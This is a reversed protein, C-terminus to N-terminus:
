FGELPSQAKTSNELAGMKLDESCFASSSFNISQINM